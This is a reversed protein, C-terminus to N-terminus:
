SGFTRCLHTIFEQVAIPQTRGELVCVTVSSQQLLQDQFPIAVVLHLEVDRKASAAPLMTVGAGSRAFGRLAEISNTELAPQLSLHVARCQADILKRIGFTSEPIAIPLSLVEALTVMKSKALPHKPAVVAHLPDVIRHAVRVGPRPLAHFAIGIDAKGNRVAETVTETGASIVRFTIGPHIRRFVSIADSLQGGVLGDITHIRIRGRRLGKFDEVESCVREYELLASRAYRAFVEGAATLIMGRAHREFLPQGLEEELNRVHRSIASPAINLHEAAIRISRCRAVQDIYRLPNLAIM